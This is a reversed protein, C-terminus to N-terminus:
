AEREMSMLGLILVALPINKVLPGFPDIWLHPAAFSLAATYFSIVALQAAWIARTPWLTAIGLGMDLLCAGAFAMKATDPALGLRALLALGSEGAYLWSVIGATIWMAAIGLLLMPRLWQVVADTRLPGSEKSSIFEDLSRPAHGLVSTIKDADGSNGRLLMNLTETSLAGSKVADGFRAAVRILPLPVSAFYARGFGMQARYSHLMERLTAAAPGVAHVTQRTCRGEEILKVVLTTLDDIHIPQMVQDGHGILPVVPLSALRLFLATSAGGMGFVVSPQVISWDLDLQRLEDDAAQKSLHYASSAQADAGLASIQIVRKIGVTRCARFLAAPALHHLEDFRTHASERLIGVANIVADVGALRPLWDAEELDRMYDVAISQGGADRRHTCAVV